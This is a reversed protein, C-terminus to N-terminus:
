DNDTEFRVVPVHKAYAAKLTWNGSTSLESNPINDSTTGTYGMGKMGVAFRVFFKFRFGFGKEVGDIQATPMMGGRFLLAGKELLYAYHNGASALSVKDSVFPVMGMITPVMGTLAIQDQASAGWTNSTAAVLGLDYATQMLESRLIIIGNKFQGADGRKFRAANLTPLTLITDSGSQNGTNSAAAGETAALLASDIMRGVKVRAQEALAAGDLVGNPGILAQLTFSNAADARTVIPSDWEVDKISKFSLEGDSDISQGDEDAQFVERRVGITKTGTGIPRGDVEVAGSQVLVAANQYDTGVLASFEPIDVVNATYNASAAM